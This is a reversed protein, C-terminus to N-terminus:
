LKKLNWHHKLKHTKHTSSMCPRAFQIKSPVPPPRQNKEEILKIAKPYYIHSDELFAGIAKIFNKTEPGSQNKRKIEKSKKLSPLGQLTSAM